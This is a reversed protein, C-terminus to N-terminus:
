QGVIRLLDARFADLAPEPSMRYTGNITGGLAVKRVRDQALAFTKGERRGKIVVTPRPASTFVHDDPPYHPADPAIPDPEVGLARLQATHWHLARCARLYADETPYTM